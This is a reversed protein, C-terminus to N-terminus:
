ARYEAGVAISLPAALGVEFQQSFDLNALWQGFDCGAPM